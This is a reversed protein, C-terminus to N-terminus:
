ATCLECSPAGLAPDHGAVFEAVKPSHIIHQHAAVKDPEWDWWKIRLLAERTPEDFRYKIHKAPNGGVISYPEVDKIVVARTAVIAGDGITVGSTIVAQYAIFADHGVTIPGNDYIAGPAQIWEGNEAHSHVTSVWDSHHLGGPIFTATYHIGAYSKVHVPHGDNEVTELITMTPYSPYEYTLLREDLEDFHRVQHGDVWRRVSRKLRAVAKERATRPAPVRMDARM